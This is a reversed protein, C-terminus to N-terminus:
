KCLREAITDLRDLILLQIAMNLRAEKSYVSEQNSPLRSEIFFEARAIEQEWYSRSNNFNSM